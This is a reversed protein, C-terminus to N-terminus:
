MDQQYFVKVQSQLLIGPQPFNALDTICLKLTLHSLFRMAVAALNTDSAGIHKRAVLFHLCYEMVAEVM